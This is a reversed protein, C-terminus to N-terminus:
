DRPQPGYKEDLIQCTLKGGDKQTLDSVAIGELLIEAEGKIREM